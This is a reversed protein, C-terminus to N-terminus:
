PADALGYTDNTAVKPRAINSYNVMLLTLVEKVNPADVDSAECYPTEGSVLQPSCLLLLGLLVGFMAGDM